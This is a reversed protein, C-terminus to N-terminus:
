ELDYNLSGRLIDNAIKSRFYKMDRQSYQLLLDDSLFDMCIISFVGCDYDNTQRPVGTTKKIIWKEPELVQGKKNFAEDVLWKRLANCYEDGSDGMSDYYCILKKNVFVVACTWHRNLINIPFFLKDKEFVDFKLTWRKVNDYNYTDEVLLKSIFIHNFFYSAIRNTSNSACLMDDREQLM